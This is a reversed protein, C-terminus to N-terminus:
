CPSIHETEPKVVEIEPVDYRACFCKSPTGPYLDPLAGEAGEMDFTCPGDKGRVRWSFCVSVDLNKNNNKDVCAVEVEDGGEIFPVLIDAGGGGDTIVDGCADNPKKFDNNWQVSGVVQQETGYNSMVNYSHKSKLGSVYCQGRLADGGDTAVYWGNDYRASNFHITADVAIKVTGGETCTARDHAHISNGTLYVEKARCVLNQSNNADEWADEMCNPPKMDETMTKEGSHTTTEIVNQVTSPDSHSVGDIGIPMKSIFSPTATVTAINERLNDSDGTLDPMSGAYSVIVVEGPALIDILNDNVYNDVVPDVVKVDILYTNGTNTVKFCHTIPGHAKGRVNKDGSNNCAASGHHGNYVLNEIMVKPDYNVYDVGSPDEAEVPGYGPISGSDEGGYYPWGKATVVNTKKKTLKMVKTVTIWDGPGLMPIKFESAPIGLDKNELTVLDLYTNGANKIKFCYTVVSEKVDTVLEGAGSCGSEGDDGLYVTNYVEILPNFDLKTVAQFGIPAGYPPELWGTNIIEKSVVKQKDVKVTFQVYHTGGRRLLDRQSPLGDEDLPYKTAGATDDEIAFYTKGGNDSYKTSGEIYTAQGMMPDFITFDGFLVDKQGVNQVKITYTLEEELRATTKDVEKSVRITPFPLVCTGLDLSFQQYDRSVEPDQGWAAAIDVPVEIGDVMKTAWIVAGSMDQAADTDRFKWSQLRKLEMTTTATGDNNYDIHITADEMPAVWVASRAELEEGRLTCDNNTCGFGWGVVVQPTLQRVPVVPFGWDYCQGRLRENAADKAESDTISLAIFKTDDPVGPGPVLTLLGASHTPVFRTFGSSRPPIVYQEFATTTLQNDGEPRYELKVTIPVENPNYVAMKTFAHSDGLPSYYGSSWLKVPLLSFWRMEYNSGIDGACLFAQVPKTTKWFDGEDVNFSHTEGEKLVAHKGKPLEVETNDQSATIFVRTWEFADTEIVTNEGVPAHFETGWMTTDHVEVAGALLSGPVEAYGGRTMTIPYSAQVKDRGDFMEGEIFWVHETGSESRQNDMKSTLIFTDGANLVDNADTCEEDEVDPRCGNSADGDGWVQSFRGPTEGPKDYGDEWHDYWLVTNDTSIAISILSTMNGYVSHTAAIPKLLGNFTDREPFPIYFTQVPKAQGIEVPNNSLRRRENLLKRHWKMDPM